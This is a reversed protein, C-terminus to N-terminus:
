RPRGQAAGPLDFLERLRQDLALAAAAAVPGRSASDALKPWLRELYWAQLEVLENRRDTELVKTM